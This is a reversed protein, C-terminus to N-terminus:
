KWCDTKFEDVCMPFYALPGWEIIVIIINIIIHNHRLNEGDGVVMASCM